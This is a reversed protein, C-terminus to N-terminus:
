NADIVDGSGSINVEIRPDGKYFVDGSGTIKVDLEDQVLVEVDGSGSINVDCRQAAYNFARVDGSGSINLDLRDTEGELFLKGSGSIRANTRDARLGLDVRGSGSIRIDMREAELFDESVVEGSGSIKIERVFPTTITFVLREADRVCDDFEIDWEDNRVDLEILDIINDQGEVLVEQRDGVRLIVKANIELDLEEFDEVPLEKTVIPGEGRECGFLGDDDNWGCSTFVTALLVFIGIYKM